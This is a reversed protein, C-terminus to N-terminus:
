NEISEIIVETVISLPPLIFLGGHIKTKSALLDHEIMCDEKICTSKDFYSLIYIEMTVGYSDRQQIELHISIEM